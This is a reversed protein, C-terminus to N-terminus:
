NWVGATQMVKKYKGHLDGIVEEEKTLILTTNNKIEYDRWILKDEQNHITGFTPNKSSAGFSIIEPSDRDKFYVLNSFHYSDENPSLFGAIEAGTDFNFKQIGVVKREVGLKLKSGALEAMM